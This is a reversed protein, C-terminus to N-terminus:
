ASDRACLPWRPRASRFVKLRLTMLGPTVAHTARGRVTRDLSPATLWGTFLCFFLLFSAIFLDDRLDAAVLREIEAFDGPRACDTIAAAEFM